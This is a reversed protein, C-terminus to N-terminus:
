SVVPLSIDFITGKNLESKLNITGNHLDVVQRVYSLGLGFGKVNHVNGTPVRYFKEFIRKQNEKSIGIGNDKITLIIRENDNKTSVEIEPFDKCYKMANDLLNSIVNTFHVEDVQVKSNGAVPEWKIYGGRKKVQLNFNDLASGVLENLDTEKIKLKLRGQDFVAMQLVKEVQVGLRKSETDIIRSIHSYNKHEVPISSDNLMQSALSITSIPTKLEHTMNNVFDNKMESLKKQRFIIWLTFIFIGIIILTLVVSTMGMFGVSKMIFNRQGPFYVRLYNTPNWIDQPFLQATYIKTNKEPKFNDSSIAVRNGRKIVAYEYNIDLGLDSFRSDMVKELFPRSIRDEVETNPNMLKTVVQDVLSQRDQMQDRVLDPDPLRIIEQPPIEALLTDKSGEDMILASLSDGGLNIKVSSEYNKQGNNSIKWEQNYRQYTYINTHPGSKQSEIRFNMSYSGQLSDNKRLSNFHDSIIYVAEDKEIQYIVNSLARSVLQNFQKEKIEIANNIWYSQVFILGLMIIAMFGALIWLLRKSM